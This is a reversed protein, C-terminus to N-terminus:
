PLVFHYIQDICDSAGDIEREGDPTYANFTLTISKGSWTGAYDPNRDISIDIRGNKNTPDITAEHLRRSADDGFSVDFANESGDTGQPVVQLKGGRPTAVYLYASASQNRKLTVTYHDKQGPIPDIGAVSQQLISLKWTVMLSATSFEITYDSKDWPLVSVSLQLSRRSVYYGYVTWTHNRAFDGPTKMSFTASKPTAVGAKTVTYNITGTLIEGSERLYVTGCDTIQPPNAALADALVKEYTPGDQGAYAYLEPTESEAISDSGPRVMDGAVFSGPVVRPAQEAFVYEQSPIKGGDLVISTVKFIELEDPNSSETKMQCFVFRIKSVCRELSVTSVSLAPEEGSITLGKAVGSMPLGSAPVSTVPAEPSFFGGGFVAGNVDDWSSNLTLTSGIASGNALVFVDVSPRPRELAFDWSVPLSYRKTSGPQPFDDAMNTSDLELSAVLTHSASHFVWIKLEHVSNEAASAPAEGVEAKTIAPAPLSLTIGLHPSDATTVILTDERCATIFVTLLLASIVTRLKM